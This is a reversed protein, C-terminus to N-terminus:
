RKVSLAKEKESKELKLQKVKWLFIKPKSKAATYGKTFALAEALIARDTKKALRMYMPYNSDGLSECLYVAYVQFEQSLNKPRNKNYKEGLLDALKQM